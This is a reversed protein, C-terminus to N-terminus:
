AANEQYWQEIEPHSSPDDLWEKLKNTFTDLEEFVTVLTCLCNPHPPFVPVEDVRYIGPGLGTDKAALEDCVDYIPHSPSLLWQIGTVMPTTKASAIVGEGYAATTETRALRLAEYALDRPPNVRSMLEPYKGSVTKVGDRIYEQLLEATKLPSQGTAMAERMIKSLHDKTNNSTKWIRDSLNLGNISRGWMAQVADHNVRIVSSRYPQISMNAGKLAEVTVRESTYAGAKVGLELYEDLKTTLQENLTRSAQSLQNELSELHQLSLQTYGRRELDRLQRTIQQSAQQYLARIEPDQRLRLDIYQKRQELAWKYYPGSANIVDDLEM